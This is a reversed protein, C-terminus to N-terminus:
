KEIDFDKRNMLADRARHKDPKASQDALELSLVVDELDPTPHRPAGTFFATGTSQGTPVFCHRALNTHSPYDLTFRIDNPADETFIQGALRGLYQVRGSRQRCRAVAHNANIGRCDVTIGLTGVTDQLVRQICTTLDPVSNAHDLVRVAPSTNRPRVRRLFPHDGLHWFQRDVRGTDELFASRDLAEGRSRLRGWWRRDPRRLHAAHPAPIDVLPFSRLPRM